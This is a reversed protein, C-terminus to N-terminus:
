LRLGRGRRGQTLSLLRDANDWNYTVSPQGLVTATQRRNAADYTYDIRGQPTQEYNLRDLDDWSRTITGSISDVV